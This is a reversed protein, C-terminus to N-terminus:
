ERRLLYKSVLHKKLSNYIEVQSRFGFLDNLM